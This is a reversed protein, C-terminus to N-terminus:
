VPAGKHAWTAFAESLRLQRDVFPKPHTYVYQLFSKLDEMKANELIELMPRNIYRGKNPSPLSKALKACNNIERVANDLMEQEEEISFAKKNLDYMPANKINLFVIGQSALEGFRIGDFVAPYKRKQENKSDVKPAPNNVAANENNSTNVAQQLSSTVRKIKVPRSTQGGSLWNNLDDLSQNLMNIFSGSFRGANKLPEVFVLLVFKLFLSYFALFFNNIAVWLQNFFRELVGEIETVAKNIEENIQEVQSSMESYEHSPQQKVPQKKVPKSYSSYEKLNATGKYEQIQTNKEVESEALEQRAKKSVSISDGWGPDNYAPPQVKKRNSAM